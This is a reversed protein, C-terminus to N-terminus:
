INLIENQILKKHNKKNKIDGIYYKLNKSNQVKSINANLVSLLNLDKNKYEKRILENKIFGYVDNSKVGTIQDFKFKITRIGLFISELPVSSENTIVTKVLNLDDILHKNNSILYKSNIFRFDAPHLRIIVKINNSYLFDYLECVSNLDDIKNACILVDFVPKQETKKLNWFRIDSILINKKTTIKKSQYKMKSDESFLFNVDHYLTPFKFTVPAHQIYISKLNRKKLVLYILYNYHSHDNYSIYVNKGYSLNTVLNYLGILKIIRIDNARLEKVSFSKLCVLLSKLPSLFSLIFLQLNSINNQYSNKFNFIIKSTLSLKLSNSIDLQNKTFIFEIYKEETNILNNFILKSLPYFLLFCTINIFAHVILYFGNGGRNFKSEKGYIKFYFTFSKKITEFM